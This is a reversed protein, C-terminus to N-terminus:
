LVAGEKGRAMRKLAKQRARSLKMRISSPKCKLQYALEENTSGLLYKGEFLIREEESLVEWLEVLREASVLLDDLLPSPAEPELFTENEMSSVKGRETRQGRLFDISTNRITSVIYSALICREMSRITLINKILKLIGDHVIDEQDMQNSTYKRAINFMTREFEQYLQEMFQRDAPDEITSCIFAIM